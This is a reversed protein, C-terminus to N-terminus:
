SFNRTTVLVDIAVELEEALDADADGIAELLLFSERCYLKIFDQPGGLLEYCNDIRDILKIRKAAVSVRSLHQRDLEKRAARRLDRRQKSPNTLEHVLTAVVPNFEERIVDISVGCDEPVDHLWSAAVDDETSLPHISTRGAVRAPHTIYPRNNYKRFQGRHADAAFRAAKLIINM